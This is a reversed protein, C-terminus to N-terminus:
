AEVDAPKKTRARRSRDRAMTPDRDPLAALEQGAPRGNAPLETPKKTRPRGPGAKRRRLLRPQSALAQQWAIIEDEFFVSRGPSIFTAKPFEGREQMRWITTESLPVLALVEPWTLMKRPGGTEPAADRAPDILPEDRRRRPLKQRAVM